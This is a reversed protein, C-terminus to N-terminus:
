ETPGKPNMDDTSDGAESTPTGKFWYLLLRLCNVVALTVMILLLTGGVTTPRILGVVVLGCLLAFSQEVALRLLDTYKMGCCCSNLSDVAGM